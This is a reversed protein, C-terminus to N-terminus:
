SQPTTSPNATPTPTDAPSQDQGSAQQMAQHEQNAQQIAQHTRRDKEVLRQQEELPPLPIRISLFDRPRIFPIPAPTTSLLGLQKKVGRTGLARLLYEESIRESTVILPVATPPIAAPKDRSIGHTRAVYTNQGDYLALIADRAIYSCQNPKHELDSWQQTIQSLDTDCDLYHETNVLHGIYLIHEPPQTTTHVVLPAVLSRLEVLPTGKRTTTARPQLIYRSPLLSDHPLLDQATGKWVHLKDGRSITDVIRLTNVNANHDSDADHTTTFDVGSCDALTIAGQGDRTIRLLAVDRGRQYGTLAPETVVLLSHNHPSHTLRKRVDPAKSYNLMIHPIVAFLQGGDKLLKDALDPLAEFQPLPRNHRTPMGVFVYDYKPADADTDPLKHYEDVEAGRADLLVTALWDIELRKPCIIAAREGHEINTLDQWLDYITKVGFDNCHNIVATYERQLLAIEDKSLIATLKIEDIPEYGDKARKSHCYLAFMLARHAWALSHKARIKGVYREITTEAEPSLTTSPLIYSSFISYNRDSYVYCIHGDHRETDIPAYFPREDRLFRLDERLQRETVSRDLGRNVYLLLLKIDYYHTRDKLAQDIRVYRLMANKNVPM